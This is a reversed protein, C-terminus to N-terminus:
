NERFELTKHIKWFREEQTGPEDYRDIIAIYASWDPESSDRYFDVYTLYDYNVPDKVPSRNPDHRYNLGRFYDLRVWQNGLYVLNQPHDWGGRNPEETTYVGFIIAAPIGIARMEAALLTARSTSYWTQRSNFMDGAKIEVIEYFYFFGKEPKMESLNDHNWRLIRNIADVKTKAGAVVDLLTERMEPTINSIQTSELYPRVEAPYIKPHIPFREVPISINPHRAYPFMVVEFVFHDDGRNHPTGNDEISVLHAVQYITKNMDGLEFPQSVRM